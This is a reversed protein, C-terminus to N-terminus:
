GRRCAEDDDAHGDEEAREGPGVSAFCRGASTPLEGSERGQARSRRSRASAPRGSTPERASASRSIAPPATSTSPSGRPWSGGARPRPPRRADLQGGVSAGSSGSAISRRTAQSSSCRSTTSLGAPTTTWGPAPWAVPVSTCPSSACSAAPPSSSRGPMTCRSSRSVEPRSTTARESSACSRSCSSSGAARPRAASGRARAAARGARARAPDLRRDAAVARSRVRWESSVGVGRSATVCKSTTSSSPGRASSAHVSSVPRM